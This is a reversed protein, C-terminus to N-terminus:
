SREGEEVRGGGGPVPGGLGPGLRIWVGVAVAALVVLGAALGIPLGPRRDTGEPPGFAGLARQLEEDVPAPGVVAPGADQVVAGVSTTPAALTHVYDAILRIEADDLLEGFAPMSGPGRRITEILEEDAFSRDLPSASAGRGDDGHCAACNARFLAAGQELPSAPASTADASGGGAPGEEGDAGTTAGSLSAVYRGVRDIEAATLRDGFGPMSGTGSRTVSAVVAASRPADVLSPGVGGAGAAGHCAACYTAFIEAGTAEGAPATTTTTASTTGAPSAVRLAVVRRALADIEASSLMSGFGPMSGAGSAIVTKVRSLSMTSTRLSPGVGGSGDGGHCSACWTGYLAAADVGGGSPPSTTSPPATSPPATTAPPSTTPPPATTSPPTTPPPPTGASVSVTTTVTDSAGADDVVTLSVTYTGAAVYSHQVIASATGFDVVPSGDGFDWRYAVLSGDPDSSGTGDFTIGERVVGSYPGGAVATPPQNAPSAVTVTASTTAVGDGAPGAALDVSNGAAYLTVPGATNPATWAFTWSISGSADPTRTSAHVIEGALLRTGGDVVSLSGATASVDFGGGAGPGGSITFTYTVTAGPAVQTPGSLTVTPTAGGTHCSACTAGGNTAPDGSYGSIGSSLGGADGAWVVLAAAAAVVAVLGFRRVPGSVHGLRRLPGSAPVRTRRRRGPRRRTAMETAGM